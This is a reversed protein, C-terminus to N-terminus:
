CTVISIYVFCGGNEFLIGVYYGMRVIYLRTKICCTYISMGMYGFKDM